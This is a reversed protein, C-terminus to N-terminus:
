DEDALGEILTVVEDPGRVWALARTDPPPPDGVVIGGGRDRVVEFADEDTRDDGIFIAPLRAGARGQSLADLLFETAKGKHWEVDPRVEFVKKGETVRLGPRKCHEEVAARVRDGAGDRDARRYHISLTHDKDEIQVGPEDAFSAELGAISAELAPRAEAAAPHIRDVGPGEIEFGHNGAYFLEPLGVRSRVDALGRGSVIAVVTDSRAVLRGLPETLADLLAADEPREVIPALTGDFDLAVLM